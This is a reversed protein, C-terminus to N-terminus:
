EEKKVVSVLIGLLIFGLVIGIICSIMSLAIAGTEIM